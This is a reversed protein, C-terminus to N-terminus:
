AAEPAFECGCRQFTHKEGQTSYGAAGERNVDFRAVRCAPSQWRLRSKPGHSTAISRGRLQEETKSAAPRRSLITLNFSSIMNLLQMSYVFQGNWSVILCVSGRYDKTTKKIHLRWIHASIM